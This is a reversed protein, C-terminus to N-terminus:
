NAPPTGTIPSASRNKIQDIRKQYHDTLCHVWGKYIVCEKDRQLLWARQEQRLSTQEAAPLRALVSKYLAGLQLDLDAIEKVHCIASEVESDAKSCDYSTKFIGTKKLFVIEFQKGTWKYKIILPPERAEDDNFTSVLLGDEVDLDSNRNGFLSDYAKQDPEPIKLEFLVGSADRAVVSHVDPGATGTACSSAVVIAEQNGDGKFDYYDLRSFYVESGASCDRQNNIWGSLEEQSIAQGKRVQAPALFPLCLLSLSSWFMTTGLRVRWNM